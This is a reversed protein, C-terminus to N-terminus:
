ARPVINEPKVDPPLPCNYPTGETAKEFEDRAKKLHEPQEYLLAATCAMIKAAHMMGKHGISMGAAATAGWSHQAIGAPFCTTRIM